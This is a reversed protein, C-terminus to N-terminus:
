VLSLHLVSGGMFLTRNSEWSWAWSARAARAKATDSDAKMRSATARRQASTNSSDSLSRSAGTMPATLLAPPRARSVPAAKRRARDRRAAERWAADRLRRGHNQSVGPRQNRDKVATFLMMLSADIAEIMERSRHEGGPRREGLGHIQEAIGSAMAEGPHIDLRREIPTGEAAKGLCEEVRNRFQEVTEQGMWIVAVQKTDQFIVFAPVNLISWSAILEVNSADEIDMTYFDTTSQFREVTERLQQAL